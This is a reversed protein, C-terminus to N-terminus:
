FNESRSDKGGAPLATTVGTEADGLEGKMCGCTRLDDCLAAGCLVEDEVGVGIFEGFVVEVGGTFFPDREDAAGCCGAVVGDSRALHASLHLITHSNHVLAQPNPTYLTQPLNIRTDHRLQRISM